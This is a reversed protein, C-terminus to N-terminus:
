SGDWLENSRQRSRRISGRGRAGGGKGAATASSGRPTAAPKAGAVFWTVGGHPRRLSAGAVRLSAPRPRAKLKLRRRQLKREHANLGQLAVLHQLREQPLQLKVGARTLM